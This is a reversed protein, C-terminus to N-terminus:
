PSKAPSSDIFGQSIAISVAEARNAADLKNYISRIFTKVTNVSVFQEIAIEERTLGRSLADLVEIERRTLPNDKSATKPANQKQYAARMGAIRKAYAAAQQQIQDLWKPDFAYTSQRHAEEILSVMYSEAEVFLTILGNHYCMDYANWLAKVAADPKGLREYAIALMIFLCIRDPWIGRTFYLGKPNELLGILRAYEGSAILYSSYVIQTRGYSLVPMNAHNITLISRPVRKIDRLRVYYWALVTDRIEDLVSIEYRGAYEVIAQVQKEMESLDGQMCGIRALIGLGNCVLDHQAAAEAKYIARYAHQQADELQYTLYAAEASFVHEMGSMAGQMVKAMWPVGYHVAREMRERAGPQNDAISFNHNNKTQLRYKNHLSSGEPLYQAAKRYYDGFDEENRMMHIGGLLVYVDGLLARMDASTDGALRQELVLLIAESKELELTNLHVLAQLYEAVPYQLREEPSLLAIHELLFEAEERKIGRHSRAHDHIVKLMSPHDGCKRYCTIAQVSDGVALYHGAARRWMQQQEQPSLMYTKKELFIRYHHHFLLYGTNPENNIFPHQVLFSLHAKDGDFLDFAIDLSFSNFMSLKILLMQQKKTYGSFFREEFMHSIAQHTLKGDQLVLDQMRGNRVMLLYLLLPWGESYREIIYLEGPELLTGHTRYLEAIEDVTFRLDKGLVLFSNSTMFAISETNSLNNSILVFRFNDIDVESLMRFFGTIRHDTAEGADDIVWIVRKQQAYEDTLIRMFTGFKSLTDPFDIARLREAITPFEHRLACVLHDWFTTPLNDLANFRFWMFPTDRRTLYSAMAQTKGYGPGALLVLLPYRLGEEILSDVRPRNLMGPQLPLSQKPQM